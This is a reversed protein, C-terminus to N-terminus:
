STGEVLRYLVTAVCAPKPADEIEFTLTLRLVGVGDKVQVDEVGIRMRLRSDVPVPAVFRLKDIGYNMAMAYGSLDVIENLMAPALSLTLYGHAITGGFPTEAARGPDTHIWQHDGTADAFADITQQTVQTWGSVGLEEGTRAALDALSLPAPTATTTEAHDTM